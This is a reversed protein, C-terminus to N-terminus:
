HGPRREEGGFAVVRDWVWDSLSEAVERTEGDAGRDCLRGGPGEFRYAGADDTFLLTFYEEEVNWHPWDAPHEKMASETADIEAGAMLRFAEGTGWLDGTHATQGNRWELLRPEGNTERAAEVDIGAHLSSALDEPMVEELAALAERLDTQYTLDRFMRWLLEGTGADRLEDISVEGSRLPGVAARTAAIGLQAIEDTPDDRLVRLLLTEADEFRYSYLYAFALATSLITESPDAEIAEEAAPVYREPPAGSALLRVARQGLAEGYYEPQSRACFEVADDIALWGEGPSSAYVLASGYEMRDMWDGEPDERLVVESLRLAEAFNRDSYELDRLKRLANVYQRDRRSVLEQLLGRAVGFEGCAEHHLALLIIMGTFSPERALVSQALEPIRPNTPQVDYIEWALDKDRVIAEQESSLETM